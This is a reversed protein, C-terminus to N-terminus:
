KEKFNKISEKILFVIIITAIIIFGIAGIVATIPPHYDM